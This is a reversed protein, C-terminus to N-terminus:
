IKSLVLLETLHDNGGRNVEIRGFTDARHQAFAEIFGLLVLM